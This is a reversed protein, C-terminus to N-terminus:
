CGGDIHGRYQMVRDSSYYGYDSCVNVWRLGYPSWTRRWCSDYAAYAGASALDIHRPMADIAIRM